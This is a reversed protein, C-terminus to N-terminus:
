DENDATGQLEDEKGKGLHIDPKDQTGTITMPIGIIGMPPLGLRFKLNLAKNFSVQGEFRARFGAIRMKTREITIINNAITTKLEVKSVDPNGGLSDQRAEKGISNFLKFGHMKIKKASVVGGGKLSPYVPMMGSNLKGSLHYDLSILGEASAAATCMDRFLKVTKYAKKIDFDNSTIHYDFAAKMPDIGTYTADMTVPADVLNFGTEKLTITGDKVTMLCKADTLVLDSYKVKKVDANFTLDLNKPVMVVGSASSSTKTTSKSTDAFAMFDDVVLMNSKLTLAGKLVSGPKVVYDIVNSVAGGLVIVSNAYKVTFTDLKMKDQNFSFDGRTILFPKPYMETTCSLEKVKLSGHNQLKDYHGAVADSQKGKL